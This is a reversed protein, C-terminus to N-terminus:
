LLGQKEACRITHIAHQFQSTVAVSLHWQFVGDAVRLGGACCVDSLTFLSVVFWSCYMCLIAWGIRSSRASNAQLYTQTVDFSDLTNQRLLEENEPETETVFYPRLDTSAAAAKNLVYQYFVFSLSFYLLLALSGLIFSLIPMYNSDSLVFLTGFISAVLIAGIAAVIHYCVNRAIALQRSFGQLRKNNPYIKPLFAFLAFLLFFPVMPVALLLL